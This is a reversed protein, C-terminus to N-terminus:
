RGSYVAIAHPVTRSTSIYSVGDIILCTSGGGDLMAVASAGFATLVNAADAQRSSSSAFLLVTEFSGNGDADRVGVFTRGTYNLPGKDAAPHLSGVADPYGNIIGQSYTEIAAFSSLSNFTFIRIQEPPFENLGYGYSIVGGNAKLGFAIGTPNSATSFFTGNIVLKAQVQPTQQAVADNWFQSLTKRTVTGSPAGSVAGTLSRITATTLNVVAVYDPQGGTYNKRYVQVGTSSLILDFGSPVPGGGGGGGSGTYTATLTYSSTGNAYGHVMVYWDGAQPSPFSCQESSGNEYPRCDWASFSAQSGRKVYIDADGSGTIQVNLQTAGAAVNIRYNKQQDRTVSDSVPQGNSLTVIGGTGGGAGGGGGSITYSATLTYSSTGSAYGHIMIYWDGAQPNSFPCQENSGGAYPRCDWANMGAQSGRKVYLDADGAGTIQVLLQTAGSPVTIRYAKQQDWTVSDSVAQGSTLTVIGGAGTGGSPPAGGINFPISAVEIQNVLVQVRWDGFQSSPVGSIDYYGGTFCWTGPNAVPNWQVWWAESGDPRLWRARVIESTSVNSAYFYLHVKGDSPQFSTAAPPATCGQSGPQVKSVIAQQVNLAFCAPVLILLLLVQVSRLKM